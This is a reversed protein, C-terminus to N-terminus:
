FYGIFSDLQQPAGDWANVPLGLLRFARVKGTFLDLHARTFAEFRRSVEEEYDGALVRLFEGFSQFAKRNEVQAVSRWRQYVKELRSEALYVSLWGQYAKEIRSWYAAFTEAARRSSDKFLDWQFLVDSRRLEEAKGCENNQRGGWFCKKNQSVGKLLNIFSSFRHDECFTLYLGMDYHPPIEYLIELVRSRTM